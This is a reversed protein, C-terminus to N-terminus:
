ISLSIISKKGIETRGSTIGHGLIPPAGWTSARFPLLPDSVQQPTEPPIGLEDPNARSEEGCFRYHSRGLCWSVPLVCSSVCSSSSSSDKRGRVLPRSSVRRPPSLVFASSSSCPGASKRNGSREARECARVGTGRGLFLCDSGLRALPPPSFVTGSRVSELLHHPEVASLEESDLTCIAHSSPTEARPSKYGAPQPALRRREARRGEQRRGAELSKTRDVSKGNCRGSGPGAAAAAVAAVVTM